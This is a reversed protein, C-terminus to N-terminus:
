LQLAETAANLVRAAVDEFCTMIRSPRLNHHSALVIRSPATADRLPKIVLRHGDHTLDGKPRTVLVSYGLGQGVMGRVLELSPSSYAIKPDVGAASFLGLFYSRSPVVDLLIFPFAALEALSVDARDALPHGEALAVYPYRQALEVYRLDDPLDIDYLLAMELHGEYLGSILKEQSGEKLHLGVDPYDQAFASLISPLITPALASFSGLRLAGSVTTSTSAAHNQLDQAHSLLNRASQLIKEANPTASVGQSHHRMLLQIGFQDELKAIAVSITPQSVNLVKAAAAISRHDVCAVFYELQRLTFNPM